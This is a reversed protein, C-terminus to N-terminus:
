FRKLTRVEARVAVINMQSFPQCHVPLFDEICLFVVTNMKKAYGFLSQNENWAFQIKPNCRFVRFSMGMNGKEFAFAADAPKPNIDMRCCALAVDTEAVRPRQLNGYPLRHADVRAHWDSLQNVEFHVTINCYGVVFFFRCLVIFSCRFRNLRHLPLIELLPEQGGLDETTALIM